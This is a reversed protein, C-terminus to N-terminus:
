PVPTHQWPREIREKAYGNAWDPLDWKTRRIDAYPRGGRNVPIAM